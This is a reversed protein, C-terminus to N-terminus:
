ESNDKSKEKERKAKNRKFNIRRAQERAFFRDVEMQKENETLEKHGQNLEYPTKPYEFRRSGKGSLMNGVTAFLADM